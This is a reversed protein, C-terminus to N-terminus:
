IVGSATEFDRIVSLADGVIILVDRLLGFCSGNQEWLNANHLRNTAEQGGAKTGFEFAFSRHEAHKWIHINEGHRAFEAQIANALPEEAHESMAGVRLLDASAVGLAYGSILGNINRLNDVSTASESSLTERVTQVQDMVARVANSAAVKLATSDVRKKFPWVM